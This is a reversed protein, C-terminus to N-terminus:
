QKLHVMKEIFNSIATGPAPMQIGISYIMLLVFSLIMISFYIIKLTKSAGKLAPRTDLPLVAAFLFLVMAIRM